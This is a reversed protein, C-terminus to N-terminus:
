QKERQKESERLKSKAEETRKDALVIDGKMRANEEASVSVRLSLGNNIDAMKKIEEELDIVRENMLRRDKEITKLKALESELLKKDVDAQMIRSHLKENTEELSIIRKKFEETLTVFQSCESHAKKAIRLEEKLAKSEKELQLCKEHFESARKDGTESNM